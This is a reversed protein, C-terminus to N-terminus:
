AVEPLPVSEQLKALDSMVTLNNWWLPAGVVPLSADEGQCITVSLM